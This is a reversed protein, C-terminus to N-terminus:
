KAVPIIKINQLPIKTENTVIDQIQLTQASTLGESKVVVTIGSDNIVALSKPFGKAKLLNEINTAKEINDAIKEIKALATKKDEDTLNKTDLLEEVEDTAKELAKKRDKEATTFYDSAEAKASTEVADDSSDSDVYTAEGLYKSSSPMYKTNLWIAGGLAILMVLVAIQGRGLVKGKKM